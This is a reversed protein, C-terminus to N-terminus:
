DGLFDLFKLWKAYLLARYLEVQGADRIQASQAVGPQGGSKRWM